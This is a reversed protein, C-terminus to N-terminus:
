DLNKKWHLCQAPNVEPVHQIEDMMRELRACESRQIQDEPRRHEQITAGCVGGYVRERCTFHTAVAEYMDCRHGQDCAWTSETQLPPACQALRQRVQQLFRKPDIYWYRNNQFQVLGHSHLTSLSARVVEDPMCCPEYREAEIWQDRLLVDVVQAVADNYFAAVVTRILPQTDNCQSAYQKREADLKRLYKQKREFERVSFPARLIAERLVPPLHDNM